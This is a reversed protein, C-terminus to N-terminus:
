RGGKREGNFKEVAEDFVALFEDVNQMLACHLMLVSHKTQRRECGPIRKGAFEANFRDAVAVWDRM